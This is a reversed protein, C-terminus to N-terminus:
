DMGPAPRAPERRFSAELQPVFRELPPLPTDWVKADDDWTRVKVGEAWFPVARFAEIEQPSM